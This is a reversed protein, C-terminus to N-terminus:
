QKTYVILMLCVNPHFTAFTKQLLNFSDIMEIRGIARTTTTKVNIKTGSAPQLMNQKASQENSKIKPIQKNLMPM